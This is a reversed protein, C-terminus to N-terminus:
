AVPQEDAGCLECMADLGALYDCEPVRSWFETAATVSSANVVGGKSEIVQSIDAATPRKASGKFVMHELFHSTGAAHKTEIRCGVGVYVFLSVSRMEPMEGVLVRLGNPLTAKRYEM